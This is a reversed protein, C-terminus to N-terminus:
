KRRQHEVLEEILSCAIEDHRKMQEYTSPSAAWAGCDSVIFLPYDSEQQRSLITHSILRCVDDMDQKCGRAIIGKKEILKPASSASYKVLLHNDDEWILECAVGLGAHIVFERDGSSGSM